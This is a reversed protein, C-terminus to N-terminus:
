SQYEEVISLLKNLPITAVGIVQDAGGYYMFLKKGIIVAGCPFVVNPVQGIKEYPHRPEFLSRDTRAIIKTPDRLDALVAGVRYFGDDSIGHYLVLWGKKTKIPPGAIGVKRSDWMGQRPAIWSYEELWTKGDFNLSENFSIDIKNGSRHIIVYKGKVKEPFVCADKDDLDPPSILVPKEWNWKQKLFDKELISTLAVRPPNSGDYATYCMYIKNGLKTLRPDECGSNGGPHTKQEFTERPIYIPESARYDIDLGNKSTAYGLVSTNDESMARYLIHVKGELYITAPNFVAKSEWPHNRVPKIIQKEDSWLSKVSSRIYTLKKLLRALPILALCCTTDAAGYYLRIIGNKVIAGSPFVIDPVCGIKEYYEEPTLLPAYTKAIIKSPNKLDLLAAEISFLRKPSSYNRIYSYILLWGDKTKIPPAGVEIHDNPTKQLPLVHKDLNQYWKEWRSKSWLDEKKEFSVLCIKAPPRDTNVTLVALIKGNVREPFLAMAKANFPTILHKEQITKLDKSIALGVQIGEAGFPYKSLATYFIYFKNNLKTVRPDECGFKDWIQDPIILRKRNSFNVGDKSRAIGIDSVKLKTDTLSHYHSLSVARYVLYIYGDKQVPCGNFVAYTEWSQNRNPKFIPNQNSREVLM